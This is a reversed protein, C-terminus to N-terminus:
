WFFDETIIQNNKVGLSKLGIKLNNKMSEPGCIYFISNKLDSVYKTVTEINIRGYELAPDSINKNDSVFFVKKFWNTKINDIRDKM